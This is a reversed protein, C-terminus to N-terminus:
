GEGLTGPSPILPSEDLATRAQRALSGLYLSLSAPNSSDPMLLGMESAGDIAVCVSTTADSWIALMADAEGDAIIQNAHRSLATLPNASEEIHMSPGTLTLAIALEGLTSTPLTYIFLNGRGLSRGGALYDHFYGHDAAMCGDYGAALLGTQMSNNQLWDSSKMALGAACLSHRCEVTMRSLYKLTRGIIKTLDDNSLLPPTSFQNGAGDFNVVGCNAPSCWSAARIM